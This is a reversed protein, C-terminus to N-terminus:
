KGGRYNWANWAEDETKCVPGGAKCSNCAIFFYKSWIRKPQVNASKCFPCPKVRRSLLETADIM